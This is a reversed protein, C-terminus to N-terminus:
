FQIQIGGKYQATIPYNGADIGRTSLGNGGVEPDFGTYETLTLVNQAQVYIRLKQMGLVNMTASPLTYGLSVNRLRVFDGNELFYDSAGRYSKTGSGDYWPIQSKTNNETWSYFLDSHVGAQYAYAKSGNMVMAGFSGYWQMSFDLGRYNMSLNLGTEFDPTGSGAYRRDNDDLKGDGNQDVYMLEGLKASPDLELYADLEEQTNIIGATERLFFAGAEYGETIVTVIERTGFDSIFGRDLYIIPNNESTRTVVNNNKTFTGSINWSFDSRARHRYNFGLEIGSNEMNGVNFVTSRNGGSVGTSPPNVIQYLLDRKENKYLDATIILQDDFMGIDLGINQGINTEWKLGQNAYAQQTTGLAGQESTPNLVDGSPNNSGFVYDVGPEVVAQNSYTAFRDNGTTGYSARIKFSNVVEEVPEWFKEESVNWGASVSPFLGWRNGESFQSSGDYRVSASFLYKRDYDYRIRGLNGLLVRTFDFGGSEIDWLLEYNDLSTIAPNLNNRVELSIRENTSKEFSTMALLNIGHKGFRKNYNAFVESTLKSRTIDTQTQSTINNPNTILRGETNYIDYRPVTRVWKEDGYQAGFRGTIKLSKIPSFDIAVNGINSNGGRLETTKISRLANALRRAENLQWDVTPDDLSVASINTISTEDISVAPKFQEYVRIRNMMGGWPRRQDERRSTLGTTVKWKGKTFTTNARLNLRTFDSNYFSGEQEFYNATFNYTLGQNGGAVRVLHNQIPANDNLLVQGIDTNNTFYSPNRHIDGNVGGQPKDTNISNRLLHLYSYEEKTMNNFESTINQIGYESEASISMEGLKGQKTTILIVGGAGRTGYISASADDKLVDVSAIESISLQPDSDFPIGDVVYLPGSQGEILSSFGRILINAEEGPAGSSSTVNVGAIQGQLASGLDSTTMKTLVDSKITSVAGTVERKQQTGYGIVVVEELVKGDEEMTVNIFSQEGIEVIQEAYGLYRFVLKDTSSVEIEFNGELDSITGTTTGAVHITVGLLPAGEDSVTGKITRTQAEMFNFSLLCFISSIFIKSKWNFLINVKMM